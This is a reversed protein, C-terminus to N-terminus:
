WKLLVLIELFQVKAIIKRSGVVENRQTANRQVGEDVDVEFCGGQEEEREGERERERGGGGWIGWGFGGEREVVWEKKWIYVCNRRRRRMRKGFVRGGEGREVVEREIELGRSSIREGL